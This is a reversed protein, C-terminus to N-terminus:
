KMDVERLASSPNVGWEGNESPTYPGTEKIIKATIQKKSIKNTIFEYQVIFTIDSMIDTSKEINSIEFGKLDKIDYWAELIGAPDQQNSLWTRQAYDTMKKWDQNKWALVYEALTYRATGQKFESPMQFIYSPLSISLQIDKKEILELMKFGVGEIIFNGSLKEGNKGVIKIVENSQSRPTFLVSIEYSGSKFEERQPPTIEAEYKGQSVTTEKSVGIYADSGLRGWVDFGIKLKAGDPLDTLGSIVVNSNATNINTLELNSFNKIETQNQILPQESKTQILRKTAIQNETLTTDTTVIFLIFFIIVASSFIKAIRKRTVGGKLFRSFVSPKIVGILLAVLSLLFLLLFLNDM